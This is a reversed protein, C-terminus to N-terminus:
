DTSNEARARPRMVLTLGAGFSVFVLHDGKKIRGSEIAECLALPISATSTNGYRELNIFIKERPIKLQRHM